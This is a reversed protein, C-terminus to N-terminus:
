SVEERAARRPIKVLDEVRNLFLFHDAEISEYMDVMSSVANKCAEAIPRVYAM